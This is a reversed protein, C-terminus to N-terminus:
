LPSVSKVLIYHNILILFQMTKLKTMVYADHMNSSYTPTIVFELYFVVFIFYWFDIYVSIWTVTKQASKLM